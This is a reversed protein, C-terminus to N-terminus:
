PAVTTYISGPGLEKQAKILDLGNLEGLNTFQFQRGWEDSPETESVSIMYTRHPEFGSNEAIEAALVRKDPISGSIPTFIMPYKNSTKSPGRKTFVGTSVIAITSM